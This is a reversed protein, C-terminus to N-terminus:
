SQSEKQKHGTGDCSGCPINNTLFKVLFIGTGGCYSCVTRLYDEIEVLQLSATRIQEKLHARKQKMQWVKTTTM